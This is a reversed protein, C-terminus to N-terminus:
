FSPPFKADWAKEFTSGRQNPNYTSGSDIGVFLQIFMHLLFASEPPAELWVRGNGGRILYGQRGNPHTYLKVDADLDADVFGAALIQARTRNAM